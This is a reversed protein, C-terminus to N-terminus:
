YGKKHNCDIPFRGKFPAIEHFHNQYYNMTKMFLSNAETKTRRKDAHIARYISVLSRGYGFLNPTVEIDEKRGNSFIEFCKPMLFKYNNKNFRQTLIYDYRYAYFELLTMKALFEIKRSNNPENRKQEAFRERKLDKWHISEHHLVIILNREAHFNKELLAKGITLSESFEGTIQGGLDEPDPFFLVEKVQELMIIIQEKEHKKLLRDPFNHVRAKLDNRLSYPKDEYIDQFLWSLSITIILVIKKM